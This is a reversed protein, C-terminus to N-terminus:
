QLCCFGYRDSAAHFEFVAPLLFRISAIQVIENWKMPWLVLMQNNLRANISMIHIQKRHKPVSFSTTNITGNLTKGRLKQVIYFSRGHLSDIYPFGCGLIPIKSNTERCKYPKIIKASWKASDKIKQWLYIYLIM